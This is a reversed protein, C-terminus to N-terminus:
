KSELVELAKIYRKRLCERKDPDPINEISDLNDHLDAIKVKIARENKSAKIHNIYDPYSMNEPKSLVFVSKAIDTGFKILIDTYSIKTDELLDHLLAICYTKEDDVGVRNAVALPHKYYDEGDLRYQGKHFEKAFEYAQVILPEENSNNNDITM